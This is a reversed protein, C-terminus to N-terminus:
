ISTNIKKGKGNESINEIVKETNTMIGPFWAWAFKSNAKDM